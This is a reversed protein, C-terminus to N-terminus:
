DDYPGFQMINNIPVYGLVNNTVQSRLRSRITNMIEDVATDDGNLEAFYVKHMELLAKLQVSIKDSEEETQIRTGDKVYDKVRNVFFIYDYRTIDKLFDKYLESLIFDEDPDDFNCLAYYYTLFAPSDTVLVDIADPVIDEKERQNRNIIIQESISNIQWGRNIQERAFEQILEVKVGEKKCKVFVDAACVSKGAGPSGVLGIKITIIIM